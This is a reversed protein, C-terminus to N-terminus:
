AIIDNKPATIYSHYTDRTLKLVTESDPIPLVEACIYGDYGIDLLAKFVPTFNLMGLGAAMRNNDCLHIYGLIDANSYLSDYFSKEEINMHYTDALMKLNPHNYYRIISAADELSKGCAIEYRNIAEFQLTVKRKEAFDLLPTMCGRVRALIEDKVADQAASTSGRVGGIIVSAGYISAFEINLKIRRVAEDRISKEPSVFCIGDMSFNQGTAIASISLGNKLLSAECKKIDLDEPTRISIEISDFNYKKATEICNQIDGVFPYPAYESLNTFPCFAVALKM